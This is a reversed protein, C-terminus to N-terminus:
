FSCRFCYWITGSCGLGPLNLWEQDGCDLGQLQLGSSVFTVRIVASRKNLIEGRAGNFISAVANNVCFKALMLSDTKKCAGITSALPLVPAIKNVQM